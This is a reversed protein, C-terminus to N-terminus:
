AKKIIYLFHFSLAIKVVEGIIYFILVCSKRTLDTNCLFHFIFLTTTKSTRDAACRSAKQIFCPTIKCTELTKPMHLPAHMRDCVEYALVMETIALFWRHHACFSLTKRLIKASELQLMMKVVM